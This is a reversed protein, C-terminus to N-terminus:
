KLFFRFRVLKKGTMFMRKRNNNNNNNNRSKRRVLYYDNNEHKDHELTIQIMSNNKTSIKKNLNLRNRNYDNLITSQRNM